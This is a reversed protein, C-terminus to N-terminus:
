SPLIEGIFDRRGRLFDEGSMVRKGEPQVELLMVAGDETFVCPKGELAFVEGARGKRGVPSVKLIKLIKGKWTTFASPRPSFARVKLWVDRSSARFDIFLDERRILRTYTARTEDQPEPKIKGEIWLPLIELLLDRALISLKEELSGYTDDPSIKIRRIGIIPGADVKEEMLIISVGTEEDGSLITFPIPAPGRHRPLLSPHVNLCGKEPLELLWKPLIKGYASVIIVEPSLAYLRDREDELREPQFVPLSLRLAEKKVPTGEIARGRGKPRDPNTYVGVIEYGAEFLGRLLPVSFGPSGMFVIRM